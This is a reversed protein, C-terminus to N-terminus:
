FVLRPLVGHFWIEEELLKHGNKSSHDQENVLGSSPIIPAQPQEVKLSSKDSFNNLGTDQSGTGASGGSGGGGGSSGIELKSSAAKTPQDLNM